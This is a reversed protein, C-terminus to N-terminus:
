SQVEVTIKIYKRKFDARGAHLISYTRGEIEVVTDTGIAALNSDFRFTLVFAQSSWDGADTELQRPNVREFACHRVLTAFGENKEGWADRSSNPTKLVARTNLRINKMNAM